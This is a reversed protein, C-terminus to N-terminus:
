WSGNWGHYIGTCNRVLLADYTIFMVVVKGYRFEYRAPLIVLFLTHQHRSVARLPLWVPM